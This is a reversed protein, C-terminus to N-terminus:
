EPPTDSEVPLSKLLDEGAQTAWWHKIAWQTNDSRGQVVLGRRELSRLVAEAPLVLNGCGLVTKKIFGRRRLCFGIFNSGIGRKAGVIRLCALQRETLEPDM